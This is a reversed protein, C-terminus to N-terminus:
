IIPTCLNILASSVTLMQDIVSVDCGDIVKSVISMELKNKSLATYKQRYLNIVREVHIRLHSIKRSMELDMPHLQKKGKTFSPMHMSAGRSTIDKLILFGRDAMVVDGAKLKELFGSDTSVFKDSSRGGYACSVFMIFGQPSIGVLVKLTPGAKYNSYLQCAAEPNSSNQVKIEFCDIIVTVSDGFNEKFVAPMTAKLQEREPWFVLSRMKCYLVYLCKSFYKSITQNSVGFKHEFYRFPLALRLKLITIFFIEFKTLKKKCEPLYEELAEYLAKLRAGTTLGTFFRTKADNNVFNELKIEHRKLKERLVHIENQLNQGNIEYLNM